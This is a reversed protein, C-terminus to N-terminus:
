ATREAPSLSLVLPYHDSVHQNKAPTFIDCRGKLPMVELTSDKDQTPLRDLLFVYDMRSSDHKCSVYPNTVGDYTHGKSDPHTELFM